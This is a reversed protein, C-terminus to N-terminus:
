GRARGAGIRLLPVGRDRSAVAPLTQLLLRGRGNRGRTGDCDCSVADHCKVVLRLPAIRVGRPVVSGLAIPVTAGTVSVLLLLMLLLLLRVQVVMMVRRRGSTRRRRIKGTREKRHARAKPNAAAPQLVQVVVEAKVWQAIRGRARRHPRQGPVGDLATPYHAMGDQGRASRHCIDLQAVCACGRRRRPAVPINAGSILVRCELSFRVHLL